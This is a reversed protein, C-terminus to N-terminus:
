NRAEWRTFLADFLRPRMGGRGDGTRRLIDRLELGARALEAVVRSPPAIDDFRHTLSLELIVFDCRLLTEAAGQLVELEFGETDIKLGVRGPYDAMIRDLPVVPVRRLDYSTVGKAMPGAIAKFGAMAPNEGRRLTPIRLDMEGATAGAACAHFDFDAPAGKAVTEAEAEARPDILVFKRDAFARYLQPTGTHVGVDVIVDTGAGFTRLYEHHGRDPVAVMGRQRLAKRFMHDSVPTM